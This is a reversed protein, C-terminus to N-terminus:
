NLKCVNLLDWTAEFGKLIEIHLEENLRINLFAIKVDMQKVRWKRKTAISLVFRIIYWQV